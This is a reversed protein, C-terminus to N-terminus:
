PIKQKQKGAEEWRKQKAIVLSILKKGNNM